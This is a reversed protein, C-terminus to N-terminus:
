TTEKETDRPGHGYRAAGLFRAVILRLMPLPDTDTEHDAGLYTADIITRIWSAVEHADLSQDVLGEAAARRVLAALGEEVIADNTTVVEALKPDEGVQRLLEVLLGPAVEDRAPAALTTVMDLISAVPDETDAHAEVLDRSAPIDREFIARFIAHKDPFYYFLSGSSIGAKGAIEATTTGAFGREAFLTAAAETVAERRQRTRQQDVTRAM